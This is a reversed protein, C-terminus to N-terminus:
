AAEVARDLLTQVAHRQYSEFDAVEENWGALGAVEARDAPDGVMGMEDVLSRAQRLTEVNGRALSVLDEIASDYDVAAEVLTFARYFINHAVSMHTEEVLLSFVQTLQNHWRGALYRSGCGATAEVSQRRARDRRNGLVALTRDVGM